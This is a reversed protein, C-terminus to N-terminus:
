NKTKASQGFIGTKVKEEKVEEAPTNNTPDFVMDDYIWNGGDLKYSTYTGDPVATNESSGPMRSKVEMLHDILIADFDKDHQIVMSVDASYNYVRRSKVIDRADGNKEVFVEKGFVPKGKDFYMVDIVKRKQFESPQSYSFLLYHAVGERKFPIIHYYIGALWDDAAYQNYELDELYNTAQLPFVEGTKMHIYGAEKSVGKENSLSFTYVKFLSDPSVHGHIFPIKELGLSWSNDLRIVREFEKSFADHARLRNSYSEANVMVDSFFYLDETSTSSTKQAQGLFFFSLFVISLLLKM